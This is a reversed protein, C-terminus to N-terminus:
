TQIDGSEDPVAEITKQKPPKKAKGKGDVLEALGRQVLDEAVETDLDELAGEQLEAQGGMNRLIRVKM